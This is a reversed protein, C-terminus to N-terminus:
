LNNQLFENLKNPTFNKGIIIGNNDLLINQPITQIGYYTAIDTGDNNSNIIQPWNLEDEAIAKKWQDANNDLSVGVINFGKDHFDNYTAGLEPNVERCPSCWSAWFDVLVYTGDVGLISLSDGSPTLKTFDYFPTGISSRKVISLKDQLKIYDPCQHYIESVQNSVEQYDELTLAPSDFDLLISAGLLDNKKAFRTVINVQNNNMNIAEESIQNATLTDGLAMANRWKIELMGMTQNYIEFKQNFANLSDQLIGAKISYGSTSDFAIAVDNGDHFYYGPIMLSDIQVIVHQALIDDIHVDLSGEDLEGEFLVQEGELFIRVPSNGAKPIDISLNFTGEPASCAALFAASVVALLFKKM